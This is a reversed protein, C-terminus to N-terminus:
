ARSAAKGIPSSQKPPVLSLAADENAIYDMKRKWPVLLPHPPNERIARDCGSRDIPNDGGGTWRRSLPQRRVRLRRRPEGVVRRAVARPAGSGVERAGRRWGRENGQARPPPRG